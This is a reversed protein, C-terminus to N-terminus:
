SNIVLGDYAAFVGKPLENQLDNHFGM